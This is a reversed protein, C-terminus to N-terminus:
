EREQSYSEDSLGEIIDAGLGSMSSQYIGNHVKKGCVLAKLQPVRIEWYRDFKWGWRGYKVTEEEKKKQLAYDLLELIDDRDNPSIEINIM